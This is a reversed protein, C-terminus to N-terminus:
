DDLLRKRRNRERQAEATATVFWRSRSVVDGLEACVHCYARGGRSEYPFLLPLTCYGCTLEARELLKARKPAREVLLCIIEANPYAAVPNM